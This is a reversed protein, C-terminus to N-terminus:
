PVEDMLEKLSRVGHTAAGGTAPRYEYVAEVLWLSVRPEFTVISLLGLLVLVFPAAYRIVRALGIGFIQSSLFLNLGVPPTLYGIELNVLFVVGLHVPDVGVAQAIPAVLPVFIMLASLIDVLCGVVLLLLDVALLFWAGSLHLETIWAATRSPIRLWTLLEALALAMVVIVLFSGLMLATEEFLAPLRRWAVSRHVFREVVLAYVAAMASAEIVTFWGGYIGGLVLAPLLLTPAGARLAAWLEARSFPQRRVGSRRGDRLALASLGLAILVAPGLCALWLVKVDVRASTNFLCYVIAPISPPVLIGISGATTVLGVSFPEGHGEDRLAPYVLGGIAVLTATSSGTIAAFLLCAVVGAIAVGGPAWGALARAVRILRRSMDGASMVVGTLLFLPIALLSPGDALTRIRELVPSAVEPWSLGGLLVFGLLAGVGIVVFLPAGLAGLGVCGLALVAGTM